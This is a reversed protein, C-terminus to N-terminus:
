AEDVAQAYIQYVTVEFLGIPPGVFQIDYIGDDLQVKDAFVGDQTLDTFDEDLVTIIVRSVDFQGIRTDQTDGGKSLFEVAVPIRVDVYASETSPTEGWNFPQGGSDPVVYTRDVNWKFTARESTTDPLGMTMAFRIADRFATADFRSDTGAM